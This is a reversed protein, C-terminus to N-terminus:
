CTHCRLREFIREGELVEQLTVKYDSRTPNGVWRAYDAMRKVDRESLDANGSTEVCKNNAPGCNPYNYRIPFLVEKPNKQGYLKEYGEKTTMNMEVFAANAVQDELSARDGLWGFRGIYCDTLSKTKCDKRVDGTVGDRSGANWIIEGAIREGLEAKQSAHFDLIAQNPIAEIASLTGLRKGNLLM